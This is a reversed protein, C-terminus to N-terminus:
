YHTRSRVCRRVTSPGVSSPAVAIIAIRPPRSTTTNGGDEEDDHYCRLRYEFRARDFSSGFARLSSSSPDTDDNEEEEEEEERNSRRGRHHLSEEIWTDDCAHFAFWHGDDVGRISDVRRFVSDEVDATATPLISTGRRRGRHLRKELAIVTTNTAYVYARFLKDRANPANVAVTGPIPVVHLVEAEFLARRPLAIAACAREDDAYLDCSPTSATVATIICAHTVTLFALALACAPRSM